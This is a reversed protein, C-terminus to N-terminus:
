EAETELSKGDTILESLVQPLEKNAICYTVFGIADDWSKELEHWHLRNRAM